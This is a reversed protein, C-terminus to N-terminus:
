PFLPAPCPEGRPCLAGQMGNSQHFRCFFSVRGGPVLDVTREQGPEVVVDVAPDEATFTHAVRGGNRVTVTLRQGTEMEVTRPSFRFDLTEVTAKLGEGEPHAEESSEPSRCSVALVALVFWLALPHRRM